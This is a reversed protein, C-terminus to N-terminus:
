SLPHVHMSGILTYFSVQMNSFRLVVYIVLTNGLLGVVCVITYLIMSILNAVPMQITPCHLNSTENGHGYMLHLNTLMELSLNFNTSLTNLLNIYNFNTMTAPVHTKQRQKAGDRSRNLEIETSISIGIFTVTM